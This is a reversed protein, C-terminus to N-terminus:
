VKLTLKGLKQQEDLYDLYHGITEFEATREDPISIGLGEEVRYLYEYADLSDMGLDRKFHTKPTIHGKIRIPCWRENDELLKILVGALSNRMQEEM